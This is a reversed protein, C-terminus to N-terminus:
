DTGNKEDGMIQGDELYITRGAARAIKRDHTILIITAGDRNLQRFLELIEAGTKSDLNGTPEDALILKPQSAIARAIAVRQCQGGSLQNPRHNMRHSLGVKELMDAAIRDREKKSIGLYMLPMEINEIATLKPILCFSQFVFGIENGRVQAARDKSFKGANQGNLFYEGTWSRDLCGLINMLTSKGSGSPGMISAFSGKEVSFCVDRLVQTSMSGNQFTKNLGKIEVTKM